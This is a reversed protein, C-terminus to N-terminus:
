DIRIGATELTIRAPELEKEYHKWRSVAKRYLPERVQVSSATAVPAANKEFALCADDWPLNCHELIAATVREQDAVMDEYNVQLVHDPLLEQWREMLDCFMLYYRATDKLDFAYNYYSFNTAFLQRFNSLVTDLPNRRLCVFKANPLAQHIFGVYLFNLPMKDVFRSALGAIRYGEKLYGKGVAGMNCKQAAIVTEPDIVRPTTTGSERKLLLGFTSMEGAAHVSPHSTLIREVLTTGTRPMGIVFIPEDVRATKAV